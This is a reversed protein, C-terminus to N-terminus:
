EDGNEDENNEDNGVIETGNGDDTKADSKKGCATILVSIPLVLCIILISMIFSIIKHSRKDSHLIKRM